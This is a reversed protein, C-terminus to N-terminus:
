NCISEKLIQIIETTNFLNM